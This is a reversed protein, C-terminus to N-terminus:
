AAATTNLPVAPVQGEGSTAPSGPDTEDPKDPDPLIPKPPPETQPVTM